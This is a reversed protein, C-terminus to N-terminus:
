MIINKDILLKGLKNKSFRDVKCDIRNFLAEFDYKNKNYMRYALNLTDQEENKTDIIKANRNLIYHEKFYNMDINSYFTYVDYEAINRRQIVEITTGYEDNITNLKELLKLYQTKSIGDLRLIDVYKYKKIYEIIKDQKFDEIDNIAILINAKNTKIGSKDLINDIYIIDHKLMDNQITVEYLSLNNGLANIFMDKIYKKYEKNEDIIKSFVVSLEEDKRYEKRLFIKILNESLKHKSKICSDLFERDIRFSLNKSFKDNTFDRVISVKMFKEKVNSIFNNNRNNKFDYVDVFITNM